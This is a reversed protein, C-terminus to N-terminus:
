TDDGTLRKGSEPDYLEVLFDLDPEWEEDDVIPINIKIENENKKM